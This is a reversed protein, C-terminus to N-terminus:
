DRRLPKAIGLFSLQHWAKRVPFVGREVFDVDEISYFAQANFQKVLQVVTRVERRPVITFVM